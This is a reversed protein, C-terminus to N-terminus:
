PLDGGSSMPVLAADVDIRQTRENAHLRFCDGRRLSVGTRAAEHVILCRGTKAISRLVTGEDYPRLTAIDIVEAAVGEASLADAAAVTEKVAAGWSILTIDRGERLVFARDLPLAKELGQQSGSEVILRAQM